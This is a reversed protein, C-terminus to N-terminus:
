QKYFYFNDKKIDFRDFNSEINENELYFSSTNNIKNLRVSFFDINLENRIYNVMQNISEEFIIGEIKILFNDNTNGFTNVNIIQFKCKRYIGGEFEFNSYVNFPKSINQNIFYNYFLGIHLRQIGLPSNEKENTEDENIEMKNIDSNYNMTEKNQSEKKNSGLKSNKKELKTKFKIIKIDNKNLEVELAKSNNILLPIEKNYDFSFSYLPTIIYFLKKNINFKYYLNNMTNVYDLQKIYEEKNNSNIDINDLEKIYLRYLLYDGESLKNFSINRANSFEYCFFNKRNNLFTNLLSIIDKKSKIKKNDNKELNFEIEIAKYLAREYLFKTSIQVKKDKKEIEKKNNNIKNLDKGFLHNFNTLAKNYKNQDIKEYSLGATFINVNEKKNENKSMKKEKDNKERNIVSELEEIVLKKNKKELKVPSYNKEAKQKM